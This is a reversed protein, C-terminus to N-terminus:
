QRVMEPIDESFKLDYPSWVQLSDEKTISSDISSSLEREVFLHGKGKLPRVMISRPPPARASFKHPTKKGLWSASSKKKRATPSYIKKKINGSGGEGLIM